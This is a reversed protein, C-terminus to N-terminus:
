SHACATRRRASTTGVQLLEPKGIHSVVDQPPGVDLGAEPNRSGIIAAAELELTGGLPLAGDRSGGPVQELVQADRAGAEQQEEDGQTLGSLMDRSVRIRCDFLTGALTVTMTTPQVERCVPNAVALAQAQAATQVSSSKACGKDHCWMHQAYSSSCSAHGQRFTDERRLSRASSRWRPASM